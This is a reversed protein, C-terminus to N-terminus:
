ATGHRATGHGRLRQQCLQRPLVVDAHARKVGGSRWPECITTTDVRPLRRPQSRPAKTPHSAGHTLRRQAHHVLREERDAVAHARVPARDLHALHARHQRGRQTRLQTRWWNHRQLCQGGHGLLRARADEPMAAPPEVGVAAIAQAGLDARLHHRRNHRKM